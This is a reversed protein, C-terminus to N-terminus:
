KADGYVLVHGRGSIWIHRAPVRGFPPPFAGVGFEKYYQPRYDRCEAGSERHQEDLRAILMAESLATGGYLPPHCRSDTVSGCELCMVRIFVIPEAVEVPPPTREDVTM